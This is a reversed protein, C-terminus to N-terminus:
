QIRGISRCKSWRMCDTHINALTCVQRIHKSGFVVKEGVQECVIHHEMWVLQQVSGIVDLTDSDKNSGVQNVKLDGFRQSNSLWLEM